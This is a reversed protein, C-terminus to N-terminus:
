SNKNVGISKHNYYFSGCPLIYSGIPELWVRKSLFCSHSVGNFCFSTRRALFDKWQGLKMFVMGVTITQLRIAFVTFPLIFLAFFVFLASLSIGLGFFVFLVLLLVELGVFAFLCAFSMILGFFALLCVFMIAFVIGFLCFSSAFDIASNTCAFQERCTMIPASTAFLCFLIMVMKTIFWFMLEINNRNTTFAM